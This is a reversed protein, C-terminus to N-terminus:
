VQRCKRFIQMDRWDWIREPHKDVSKPRKNWYSVSICRAGKYHVFLGFLAFLSFSLSLITKYKFNSDNFLKYVPLLFFIMYPMVDIFLRPGYSHGAWWHPFTSIAVWHLFIIALLSVHFVDYSKKKYNLYIGFFSLIFIPCFILLGRNPSILNGLLAEFFTNFHGVRGAAYYPPFIHSFNVFNLLCFPVAVFLAGLIFSIFLNKHKFFIYISFVLCSIANTPRVVYSSALLLGVFFAYKKKNKRLKLLCFLVSSLAFVSPGHQWLSTTATSFVSTSFAFINTLLFAATTSTFNILVLFLLSCALAVSFSAVIVELKSKARLSYFKGPKNKKILKKLSPFFFIALDPVFDVIFVFPVAFLSSGIPFLNYYHGKSKYLAAKSKETFANEFEDLNTNGTHLISVAVPISWFTDIQNKRKSQVFITFTFLFVVLALFIHKYKKM